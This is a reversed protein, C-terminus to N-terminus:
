GAQDLLTGFWDERAVVELVRACLQDPHIRRRDAEALLEAYVPSNLWAHAVHTRRPTPTFAASQESYAEPM